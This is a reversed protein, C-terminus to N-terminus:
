SLAAVRLQGDLTLILQKLTNKAFIPLRDLPGVIAVWRTDTGGARALTESAPGTHWM